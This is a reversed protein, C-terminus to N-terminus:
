ENDKSKAGFAKKMNEFREDKEKKKIAAIKEADNVLSEFDSKVALQSLNLILDTRMQNLHNEIKIRHVLFDQNGENMLNEISNIKISNAFILDKISEQNELIKSFTPILAYYAYMTVMVTLCVATLFIEM